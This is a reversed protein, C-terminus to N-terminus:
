EECAKHIDLAVFDLLERDGLETLLTEGGADLLSASLEIKNAILTDIKEEVTGRCVFKHVLVNRRQGIRFARDTAQNEVAPNWWRDFHVVHSANTLNLGTGGAKLSLVFFPPGDDRQFDNVRARRQAVPTGGHLVLGPRGYAERLLAALPETLERFQTFVLMREQREALERGLTALREFKGSEAPAYGGDGRWHAPHNCLQKLQMLYALVLGRRRMGDAERLRQAFEATCREYLAAQVRTLPCWSRVEVKDPLDTIVSRDTKLRRLLYPAVLKRLAAYTAAGAEDDARRMVRAFARADGLLGPNLFDFLAWLDAARNEVPTGTLALRSAGQLERVARALRTGPNKIAQAEDLVVRHWRRERLAANRALLHYSTIALDADALAPTLADPDRVDFDAEAPHVVVVRLGPAFRECEDRWNALLSAPAVVLSPPLATVSHGRREHLLWAIVQLTKGLGMDDALCGGLGLGGLLRLWAVGAAQYPRLTARLGPPEIRGDPAPARLRELLERLWRGPQLGTWGAIDSHPDADLAEGEIGATGASAALDAGPMGALLRMGDFFGLGGERVSAAVADWHELAAALRQPDAEVWRGRLRVLGSVGGLLQRREGATLPAGDLTLEASFDLLADAGLGGAAREGVRATVQPRAGRRAWWDPLQVGVGCEELVRADRLLRYAEEPTWALPHYLEGEDALTRLWPLRAAAQQLPALLAILRARAAPTAHQELARGLPVHRLTGTSDVRTAFTALFAFPYDADDRNEALRLTVRGVGHWEPARERLFGALGEAHTAAAARVYDDLAVWANRLADGDLYEIGRLPPAAAVLAALDDDPPPPLASLEDAPADTAAGTALCRALLGRRAFARVYNLTPSTPLAHTALHFLGPGAGSAFAETLAAAAGDPSADFSDNADVTFVRSPTLHLEM